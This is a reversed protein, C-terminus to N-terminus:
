AFNGNDVAEQNDLPAFGIEQPEQDQAVVPNTIHDYVVKTRTPQGHKKIKATRRITLKGKAVLIPLRENMNYVTNETLTSLSERQPAAEATSLSPALAATISVAGAAASIRLTDRLKKRTQKESM